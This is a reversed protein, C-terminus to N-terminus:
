LSAELKLILQEEKWALNMPTLLTLLIQLLLSFFCLLLCYWDELKSTLLALLDDINDNHDSVRHFLNVNM